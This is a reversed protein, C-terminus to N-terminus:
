VILWLFGIRVLDVQCCSFIEDIVGTFVGCTHCIEGGGFDKRPITHDANFIEILVKHVMIRIHFHQEVNERLCCYILIM